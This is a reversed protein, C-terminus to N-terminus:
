LLRIIGQMREEIMLQLMELEAEFHAQREPDKKTKPHKLRAKCYEAGSEIQNETLYVPKNM